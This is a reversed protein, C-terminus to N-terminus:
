KCNELLLQLVLGCASLLTLIMLPSITLRFWWPSSFMGFGWVIISMDCVIGMYVSPPICRSQMCICIKLLWIGCVCSLCICVVGFVPFIYDEFGLVSWLPIDLNLRHWTYLEQPEARDRSKTVGYDRTLRQKIDRYEMVSTSQHPLPVASNGTLPTTSM